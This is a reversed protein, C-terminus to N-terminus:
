GKYLKVANVATYNINYIFVLILAIFCYILAKLNQTKAATNATESYFSKRWAYAQRASNESILIVCWFL